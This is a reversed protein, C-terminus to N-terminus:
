IYQETTSAVTCNKFKYCWDSGAKLSSVLKYLEVPYELDQVPVLDCCEIYWKLGNKHAKCTAGYYLIIHWLVYASPLGVQYM